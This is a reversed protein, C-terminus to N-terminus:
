DVLIKKVEEWCEPILTKNIHNEMESNKLLERCPNDTIHSGGLHFVEASEKLKYITNMLELLKWVEKDTLPSEEFYNKFNTHCDFKGNFFLSDFHSHYAVDKSKEPSNNNTYSQVWGVSWYWECSWLPSVLYFNRGNHKGLLYIEKGEFRATKKKM